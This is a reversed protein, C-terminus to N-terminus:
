ADRSSRNGASAELILNIFVFGEVRAYPRKDYVRKHDPIESLRDPLKAVFFLSLL